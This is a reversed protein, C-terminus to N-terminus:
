LAEVPIGKDRPKVSLHDDLGGVGFGDFRTVGFSLLSHQFPVQPFRKGWFIFRESFRPAKASKKCGTPSDHPFLVLKVGFDHPFNAIVTHFVNVLKWRM